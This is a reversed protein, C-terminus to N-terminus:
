FSFEGMNGPELPSSSGVTCPQMKLMKMLLLDRTIWFTAHKPSVTIHNDIKPPNSQVDIVFAIPQPAINKIRICPDPLSCCFCDAPGGYMSNRTKTLNPEVIYILPKLNDDLTNQYAIGLVKFPIFGVYSDSSELGNHDHAPKPLRHNHAVYASLACAISEINDHMRQIRLARQSTLSKKMFFGTVIGLVSLSIAIELLLSGKGYGSCFSAIM